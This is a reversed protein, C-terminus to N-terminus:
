VGSVIRKLRNVVRIVDAQNRNLCLAEEFVELAQRNKRQSSLTYGLDRLIVYNDPNKQRAEMLIAEAIEYQRMQNHIRALELCVGPHYPSQGRAQELLSVAQSYNQELRQQRARVLLPAIMRDNENVLVVSSGKKGDEPIEKLATIFDTSSQYRNAREKALSKMLIRCLPDPLESRYARPDDPEQKQIAKFMAEVALGEITRQDMQGPLPQEMYRMIAENFIEELNIYRHGTLIEYLVAGVAYLDSRADVDRSDGSAQEPAMYAPTGMRVGFRTSRYNDFQALGWDGLKVQSGDHSLLINAPKIDRHFIKEHHAASLGELISQVVRVANSIETLPQEDREMWDELTGGDMYEMVISFDSENPYVEPDILEHVLVINPHCLEGMAYAERVFRKVTSSDFLRSRKLQKIAVKRKRMTQHHALYTAAFAGEGLFGDIEYQWIKDGQQLKPAM